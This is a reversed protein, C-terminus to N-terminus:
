IYALKAMLEILQAEPDPSSNLGYATESCLLVADRCRALTTKRATDMLARAQFEYRIGCTDILAAIGSKEEICVRAMLFQRMKLSISYIIKQPPERMRLLEDLIRMAADYKQALIADTLKYAVADPAPTVVADIDARTIAEGSSYSAVKEIESNLTTMYGETIFALYEADARAIRKGAAKFHAGIWAALKNQEQVSFEIVQAYKLIEKDLKQRSDPKYPTTDYIFVVCVHDPLDSFLEALQKKADPEDAGANDDTDPGESDDTEQERKKKGKFVDFDHVEVLTRGAFVPLTNIADSLEEVPINKGELRKYNFGDLGDPCVRKRLEGLSHELLYREEGHFIYFNGIQGAKLAAAFTDYSDNANKKQPM